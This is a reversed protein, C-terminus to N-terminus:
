DGSLMDIGITAVDRLLQRQAALDELHLSEALKDAASTDPVYARVDLIGDGRQLGVIHAGPNLDHEWLRLCRM